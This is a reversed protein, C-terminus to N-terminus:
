TSSYQSLFFTVLPAYMGREDHSIAAVKSFDASPCEEPNKDVEMFDRFFEEVAMPGLFSGRMKQKIKLRQADNPLIMARFDNNTYKKPNPPTTHLPTQEPTRFM